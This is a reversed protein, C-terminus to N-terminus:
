QATERQTEQELYTVGVGLAAWLDAKFGYLPGPRAKVGIAREKGPGYRDILAQRINADKARMSQCLTMKVEKRYIKTHRGAAAEIFRGIWLCTEFVERGVPMGYSAIMEVVLAAERARVLEIVNENTDIGFRLPWRDDMLIWASQTYGPDIAYFRM